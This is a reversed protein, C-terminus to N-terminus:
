NKFKADSKNLLSFLFVLLHVYKSPMEEVKSEFHNTVVMPIELIDIVQDPLSKFSIKLVYM